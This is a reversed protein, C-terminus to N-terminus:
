ERHYPHNQLITWARYIQEILVVRVMAHPLTLRSLSWVRDARDKCDPHLGDAGGILLAIRPFQNQWDRMEDALEMTSWQKGGEDLAITRNASKAHRLLQESEKQMARTVKGRATRQGVPIEVLQLQIQPPFRKQYTKVGEYVWAPLRTGVALISIQM